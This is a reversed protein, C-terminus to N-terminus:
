SELFELECDLCFLYLGQKSAPEGNYRATRWGAAYEVKALKISADPSVEFTAFGTFSHSCKSCRFEVAQRFRIM